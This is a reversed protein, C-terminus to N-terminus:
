LGHFRVLGGKVWLSQPWGEPLHSQGPWGEGLQGPCGEGLQGPWGEGLQGPSGDGLESRAM